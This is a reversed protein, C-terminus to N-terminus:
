WMMGVVASNMVSVMLLFSPDWVLSFSQCLCSKSFFSMSMGHYVWLIGYIFTGWLIPRIIRFRIHIVMKTKLLRLNCSAPVQWDWLRSTTPQPHLFVILLLIDWHLVWWTKLPKDKWKSILGNMSAHKNKNPNSKGAQLHHSKGPSHARTEWLVLKRGWQPGWSDGAVSEHVQAVLYRLPALKSISFWQNKRPFHM